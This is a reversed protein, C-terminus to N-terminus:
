STAPPPAGKGRGGQRRDGGGRGRGGGGGRGNFPPRDRRERPPRDGESPAPAAGEAPLLMDDEMVALRGVSRAVSKRVGVPAVLGVTVAGLCWLVTLLLASGHRSRRSMMGSGFRAVPVRRLLNSSRWM